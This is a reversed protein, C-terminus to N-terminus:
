RCRGPALRREVDVEVVGVEHDGVEVQDHAHRRDEAHEGAGVEPEGLHEAPHHVLRQALHVEPEGEDADVAMKMGM